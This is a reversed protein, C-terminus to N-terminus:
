QHSTPLRTTRSIEDDIIAALEEAQRWVADIAQGELALQEREANENVSIELALSRAPGLEYLPARQAALERLLQQASGASEVQRVADALENPTAGDINQYALVRRLVYEAAPGDFRHVKELTWPDCRSCPMGVALGHDEGPLLILARSKFFLLKILVSRCQPCPARGSWATRGFTRWRLIDTYRDDDHRFDGTIGSLGLNAGVYSLAAYTAAGVRSSRSQYRTRRRRLERGYRWWAEERLETKGVRILEIGNAELLAVNETQYLLRAGSTAIRELHFLTPLRDQLLWLNWGHCHGCVTWIRGREPDFAIRVEPWLDDPEGDGKFPQGCFLCHGYM